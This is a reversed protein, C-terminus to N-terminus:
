TRNNAWWVGSRGTQQQAGHRCSIDISLPSAVRRMAVYALLTVNIASAPLQVGNSDQKKSLTAVVVLVVGVVVVVVGVVVGVVVVVVGVVVVVVGV